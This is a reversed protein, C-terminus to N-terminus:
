DNRGSFLRQHNFFSSYSQSAMAVIDMSQCLFILVIWRCAIEDDAVSLRLFWNVHLWSYTSLEGNIVWRWIQLPVEAAPSGWDLVLYSHHSRHPQFWVPLGDESSTRQRLNFAGQGSRQEVRQHHRIEYLGFHVVAPHLGEATPSKTPLPLFWVPDPQGKARKPRQHVVQLTQCGIPYEVPLGLQVQGLHWLRVENADRTGSPFSTGLYRNGIIVKFKSWFCWLKGRVCEYSAELFSTFEQPCQNLSYIDEHPIRVLCTVKGSCLRDMTSLVDAKCGLKKSYDVKLCRGLRMLGYQATDMLIVHNPSHSCNPAFSDM